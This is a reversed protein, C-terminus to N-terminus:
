ATSLLIEQAWPFGVAAWAWTALRILDILDCQETEPPHESLLSLAPHHLNDDALCKGNQVVLRPVSDPGIESNEPRHGLNSNVPRSIDRYDTGLENSQPNDQVSRLDIVTEDSRLLMRDRPDLIARSKEEM